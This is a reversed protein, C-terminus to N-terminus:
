KENNDGLTKDILEKSIYMTIAEKIMLLVKRKQFYNLERFQRNGNMKKATKVFFIYPVYDTKKRLVEYIEDSKYHFASVDELVEGIEELDKNADTLKKALEINSLKQKETM